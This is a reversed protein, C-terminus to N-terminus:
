MSVALFRMDSFSYSFVFCAPLSELFRSTAHHKEATIDLARASPSNKDSMAQRSSRM